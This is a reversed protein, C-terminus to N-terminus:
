ILRIGSGVDVGIQELHLKTFVDTFKINANGNHHRVEDELSYIFGENGCKSSLYPVINSKGWSTFAPYMLSVIHGKNNELMKPFFHQIIHFSSLLNTEFIKEIEKPTSNLISATPAHEPLM